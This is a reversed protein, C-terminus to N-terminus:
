TRRALSLSGQGDARVSSDRGYAVHSPAAYGAASDTSYYPQPQSVPAGYDAHPSYQKARVDETRSPMLVSSRRHDGQLQSMYGPDQLLRRHDGKRGPFRDSGHHPTSSLQPFTYTSGVTHGATTHHLPLKVNPQSKFIAGAGQVVSIDTTVSATGQQLNFLIDNDTEDSEEAKDEETREETLQQTKEAKTDQAEDQNKGDDTLPEGTTGQGLLTQDQELLTIDSVEPTRLTLEPISLSRQLSSSPTLPTEQQLAQGNDDIRIPLPADVRFQLRHTTFWSVVRDYCKALAKCKAFFDTSLDPRQLWAGLVLAEEESISM